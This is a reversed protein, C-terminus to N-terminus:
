RILNLANPKCLAEDITKSKFVMVQSRMHIHLGGLHGIAVNINNSSIGIPHIVEHFKYNSKYV